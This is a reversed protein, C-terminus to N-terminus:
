EEKKEIRAVSADWLEELRYYARLEPIMVHVVVDSYDLLIWRGDEFGERQWSRTGLEALDDLVRGACAHTHVTSDCQCIVFWDAAGPLQRLDLVTIQEALAEELSGRIKTVLEKGHLPKGGTKNM